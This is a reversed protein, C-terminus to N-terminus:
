QKKIFKIAEEPLKFDLIDLNQAQHKKDYSMPIVQCGNDLHYRLLVQAWSKNFPKGIDTLKQRFMDDVSRLPSYIQPLIDNQKCFEIIEKNWNSPNSKVQNVVPKVKANALLYTLELIMFNSVGISKLQGKQHYEEMVRWVRLNDENTEFPRHILYLDIYDTNLNKFSSEISERILDETKVVNEDWDIKSEIYMDERKICQNKIAQAVLYENRYIIATDFMRYGVEIAWEMEKSDDTLAAYFDANLKGYRSTGCGIKPIVYNNNLKFHEM